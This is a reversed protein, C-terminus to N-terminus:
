KSLGLAASLKPQKTLASKLAIAQEISEFSLGAILSRPNITFVRGAKAARTLRYVGNNDTKSNTYSNSYINASSQTQEEVKNNASAVIIVDPDLAVLGEASVKRYGEYDALNTLGLLSLFASGGTNIGAIGGHGGQASLLFLATQYQTSLANLANISQSLAHLVKTVHEEQELATSIVRVNKELQELTYPTQYQVIKTGTLALIDLTSAPGMAESGVLITPKLSLLGETSLARHYGINAIENKELLHRSSLDAAVLFSTADLQQIIQTARLDVSIIRQASNVTTAFLLLAIASFLKLEKLTIM